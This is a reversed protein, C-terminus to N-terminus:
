VFACVRVCVRARVLVNDGIACKTKTKSWKTDTISHPSTRARRRVMGDSDNRKITKGAPLTLFLFFVGGDGTINVFTILVDDVAACVALRTDTMRRLTAARRKTHPGTYFREDDRRSGGLCCHTRKSWARGGDIARRTATESFIDYDGAGDDDDDDGGGGIDGNGRRQQVQQLLAGLYRNCV